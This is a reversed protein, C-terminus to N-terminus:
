RLKNCIKLIIIEELDALNAIEQFEKMGSAKLAIEDLKGELDNYEYDRKERYWNSLM